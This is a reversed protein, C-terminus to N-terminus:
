SVALFRVRSAPATLVVIQSVQHATERRSGAQEFLRQAVAGDFPTRLRRPLRRSDSRM